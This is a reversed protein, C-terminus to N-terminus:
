KGSAFTTIGSSLATVFDFVGTNLDVGIWRSGVPFRASSMGGIGAPSLYVLRLVGSYAACVHTPQRFLCPDRLNAEPVTGRAVRGDLHVGPRVGEGDLLGQLDPQVTGVETGGHPRRAVVDFQDVPQEVGFPTIVPRTSM